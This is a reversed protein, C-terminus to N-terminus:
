ERTIKSEIEGKTIKNIADFFQQQMGAPMRIKASLSADSLWEESIIEGYSKLVGYTRVAHKAPIRLEIIANEFKIPLVSQIQRAIDKIQAEASKSYDIKAKAEEIAAEIRQPPHPYGTKPDVANRALLTIIRKRLAERQEQRFEETVQIEGEKLIIEAVKLEDETGFLEMMLKESARLGKKADSFVHESKLVESLEVDEGNRYKVALDPDIVVEFNEGGKKLRALNFHIKEKGLMITM